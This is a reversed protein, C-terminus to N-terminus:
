RYPKFEIPVEILTPKDAVVAERLAPLVAEVREARTSKRLRWGLDALREPDSEGAAIAELIARGSDGLLNAILSDIKM